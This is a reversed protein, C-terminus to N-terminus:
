GAGERGAGNGEGCQLGFLRRPACEQKFGKLPEWTGLFMDLSMLWDYGPGKDEGGRGM